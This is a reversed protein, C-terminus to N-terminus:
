LINMYICFRLNRISSMLGPWTLEKTFNRSFNSYHERAYPHDINTRSELALEKKRAM